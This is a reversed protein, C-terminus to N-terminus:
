VSHMSSSILHRSAWYSRALRLERRWLRCCASVRNTSLFVIWAANDAQCTLEQFNRKFDQNCVEGYQMKNVLAVAAITKMPQVPVPIEFILAMFLHLIGARLDDILGIVM